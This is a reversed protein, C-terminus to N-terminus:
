RRASAGNKQVQTFVHRLIAREGLEAQLMAEYKGDRVVAVYPTTTDLFATIQKENPWSRDIFDRNLCHEFLENLRGLTLRDPPDEFNIPQPNLPNYVEGRLDGILVAALTAAYSEDTEYQHAAVDPHLDIPDWTSEPNADSAARTKKGPKGPVLGEPAVKPRFIALQRTIAQARYYHTEYHPKDNVIARLLTRPESWGLFFEDRNERRGVFVIAKPAGVEAAGACVALLRTVWWATGDKLDIRLLDHTTAKRLAAKIKMGGSDTIREEEAIVNDPLRVSEQRVGAHELVAERFDITVWKSGITGGRSAVFELLLLLPPVASVALVFYIFIRDSDGDPWDLYNRTLARIAVFVLWIGISAGIAGALRRSLM